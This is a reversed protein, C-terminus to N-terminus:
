NITWCISWLCNKMVKIQTSVIKDITAAVFHASGTFCTPLCKVIVKESLTQKLTGQLGLVQEKDQRFQKLRRFDPWFIHVDKSQVATHFIRTCLHNTAWDRRHFKRARQDIGLGSSTRMDLHHVLCVINTATLIIM